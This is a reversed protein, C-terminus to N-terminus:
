DLIVTAYDDNEPLETNMLKETIYADSLNINHNSLANCIGQNIRDDIQLYEDRTIHQISEACTILRNHQESISEFSIEVAANKKIPSVVAYEPSFALFSRLHTKFDPSGANEIVAAWENFLTHTIHHTYYYQCCYENVTQTYVPCLIFVIHCAISRDIREEKFETIIRKIFSATQNLHQEIFPERSVFSDDDFTENTYRQQLYSIDNKLDLLSTNFKEVSDSNRDRQYREFFAKLQEEIRNLKTLTMYFGAISIGCNALSLATSAWSLVEIRQLGQMANEIRGLRQIVDDLKINAENVGKQILACQVNAALSSAIEVGAKAIALQPSISLNSIFSPLKSVVKPKALEFLEGTPLRVGGSSLVAHGEKILKLAKKSITMVISADM